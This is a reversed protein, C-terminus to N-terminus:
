KIMGGIMKQLGEDRIKEGNETYVAGDSGIGLSMREREEEDYFNM